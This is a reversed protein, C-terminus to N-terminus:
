FLANINMLNYCARTGEGGSDSTLTLLIRMRSLLTFRLKALISQINQVIQHM